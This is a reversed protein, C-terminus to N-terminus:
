KNLNEMIISTVRPNKQWFEIANIVEEYTIPNKDPYNELYGMKLFLTAIKSNKVHRNYCGEIVKKDFHYDDMFLAADSAMSGMTIMPVANHLKRIFYCQALGDHANNIFLDAKLATHLILDPDNTIDYGNSRSCGIVNHGKETFYRYLAKGLGSTHGTIVINM